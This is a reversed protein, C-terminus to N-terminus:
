IECDECNSKKTDPPCDNSPASGCTLLPFDTLTVGTGGRIERVSSLSLNRLTERHLKLKKKM